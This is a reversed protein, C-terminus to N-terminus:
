LPIVDASTTADRSRALVALETIMDRDVQSLGGWIGYPELVAMAHARCEVIV